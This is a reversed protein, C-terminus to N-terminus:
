LTIKYIKNWLYSQQRIHKEGKQIIQKAIENIESTKFVNELEAKSVVLGKKADSFVKDDVLIDSMEVNKGEKLALAKECDVLIEFKSKGSQLRAVVADEILTM